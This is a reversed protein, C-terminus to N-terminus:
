LVFPCFRCNFPVFIVIFDECAFPIFDANLGIQGLRPYSPLDAGVERLRTHQYFILPHFNRDNKYIGLHTNRM